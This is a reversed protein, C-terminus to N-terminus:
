LVSWFLVGHGLLQLGEGERRQRQARDARQTPQVVLKAQLGVTQAAMQVLEPGVDLLAAPEAALLFAPLAGGVPQVAHDWQGVQQIVFHEDLLDRAVDVVDQLVLFLVAPQARALGEDVFGLLGCEIDPGQEQGELHQHLHVIDGVGLADTLADHVRDLAAQAQDVAVDVAPREEVPSLEAPELRQDGDVPEVFACLFRPQQLQRHLQVGLAEVPGLEECAPGEGLRRRHAAPVVHAMHHVIGHRELRVREPAADAAVLAVAARDVVHHGLEVAIVAHRGADEGAVFTQGTEVGRLARFQAGHDLM